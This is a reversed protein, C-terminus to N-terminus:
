LKIMGTVYYNYNIFYSLDNNIDYICQLNKFEEQNVSDILFQELIKRYSMIEQKFKEPHDKYYDINFTNISYLYYKFNLIVNEIFTEIETNGEECYDNFNIIYENCNDINNKIISIIETNDQVNINNFDNILFNLEM